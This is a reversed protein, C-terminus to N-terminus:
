CKYLNFTNKHKTNIRSAAKIPNLFIDMTPDIGEEFLKRIFFKDKRGHPLKNVLSLSLSLSIMVVCSIKLLM